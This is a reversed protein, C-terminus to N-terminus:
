AQYLQPPQSTRLSMLRVREQLKILQHQDLLVVLGQLQQHEVQVQLAVLQVLALLEVLVM